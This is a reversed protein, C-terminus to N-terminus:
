QFGQKHTLTLDQKNDKGCVLKGSQENYRNCFGQYHVGGKKLNKLETISNEIGCVVENITIDNKQFQVSLRSLDSTVDIM